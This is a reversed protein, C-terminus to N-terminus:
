EEVIIPTNELYNIANIVKDNYSGEGIQGDFLIVRAGWELQPEKVHTIGIYGLQKSAIYGFTYNVDDTVCIEAVVNPCAIVKSALLKAERKHDKNGSLDPNSSDFSSVRVGRQKDPDLRELTNVDVIAAGRMQPLSFFLSLIKEGSYGLSDLINEMKKRAETQSKDTGSPGVIIPVRTIRQNIKEIKINISDPERSQARKLLSLVARDQFGEDVIREAGSVHKGNKEARMKINLM